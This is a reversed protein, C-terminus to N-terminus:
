CPDLAENGALINKLEVIDTLENLRLIMEDSKAIDEHSLVGQACDRYKALLEERSMLFEVSGKMKEVVYLYSRRDKLHVTVSYRRERYSTPWDLHAVM